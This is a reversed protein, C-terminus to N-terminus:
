FVFNGNMRNFAAEFDGKAAAMLGGAQGVAIEPRDEELGKVIEDAAQGAPIGLDKQGRKARAGRDLETNVTPPIVEFVKVKTRSLQRRLSISFSHMAAKTACYIPMIALPVFGLGSSVNVIAAEEQIMLHPTLLATLYIPGELNCRIENDGEVLPEIGRKFNVERQMGANNVLLNVKNFVAWDALHERDREDALDGAKILLNPLKEQAERLKNERRGCILVRNERKLFAEALALGIGTGGGTILITNGSLKM